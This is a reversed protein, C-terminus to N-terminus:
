ILNGPRPTLWTRVLGSNSLFLAQDLTAEFTEGEPQGQRGGFTRVFATVNGVLKSESSSGKATKREGDVVGVAQMTSWALQEPSLPKLTAVAFSDAATERVGPPVESSRQYTKSLALERLFARVDFHMNAFEGALLALLEPHSPPNASHDFDV